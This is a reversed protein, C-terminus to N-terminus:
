YKGILTWTECKDTHLFFIFHMEGKLILIVLFSQLSSYEEFDFLSWMVTCHYCFYEKLVRDAVDNTNKRQNFEKTSQQNDIEIM